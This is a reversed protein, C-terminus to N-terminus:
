SPSEDDVHPQRIIRDMTANRPSKGTCALDGFTVVMLWTLLAIYRSQSGNQLMIQHIYSLTM